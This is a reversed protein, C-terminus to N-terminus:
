RPRTEPPTEPPASPPVDTPEPAASPALPGTPETGEAHVPPRLEERSQRSFKGRLEPAQADTANLQQKITDRQKKIEDLDFTTLASECDRKTTEYAAAASHCQKIQETSAWSLKQFGNVATTAAAVVAGM